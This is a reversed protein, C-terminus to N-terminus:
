KFGVSPKYCELDKKGLNFQENLKDLATYLDTPDSSLSHSIPM